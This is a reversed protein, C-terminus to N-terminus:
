KLKAPIGVSQLTEILDNLYYKRFHDEDRYDLVIKRRQSNKLHLTLNLNSAFDERIVAREVQRLDLSKDTNTKSGIILGFVGFALVAIGLLINSNHNIFYRGIIYLAAAIYFAVFFMNLRKHWKFIGDTIIIRNDLFNIKGKYVTFTTNM